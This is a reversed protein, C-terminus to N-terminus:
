QSHKPGDYIGLEVLDRPLTYHIRHQEGRVALLIVHYRNRFDDTDQRTTEQQAEPQGVRRLCLM